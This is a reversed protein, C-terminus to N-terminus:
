SKAEQKAWGYYIGFLWLNIVIYCEYYIYETDQNIPMKAYFVVAPKPQKGEEFKQYLKTGMLKLM